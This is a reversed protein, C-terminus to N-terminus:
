AVAPERAIWHDDLAALVDLVASQPAQLSDRYANSVMIWARGLDPTIVIITYWAGNSGEHCLLPTDFGDVQASMTGWGFAYTEGPLSTHLFDVTEPQLYGPVTAGRSAHLAVYRALDPLSLHITGAPGTAPKNDSTGPDFPPVDTYVQPGECAQHGWPQTVNSGGLLGGLGGLLGALAGSPKGGPAGFGASALGLPSFVERRMLEEWPLGALGEVVMGAVVYGLNSYSFAEGPRQTPGQLMAERALVDRQATLPQGSDYCANVSSPAPDRPLGSRHTLLHRLTLDAFGPHVPANGNIFLPAILLDWDFLGREVLRAIMTATMSKTCSGIHWLDRDTVSIGSGFRREGLCCLGELGRAGIRALGVAPLGYQRLLQECQRKLDM